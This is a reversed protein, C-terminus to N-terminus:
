YCILSSGKGPTAKRLQEDSPDSQPPNRLKIVVYLVKNELCFNLDTSTRFDLFSSFLQRKEGTGSAQALQWIGSAILAKGSVLLGMCGDLRDFDTVEQSDTRCHIPLIQGGFNQQMKLGLPVYFYTVHIILTLLILLFM